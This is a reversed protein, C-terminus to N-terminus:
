LTNITKSNLWVIKRLFCQFFLSQLVHASIKCITQAMIIENQFWENTNKMQDVFEKAAFRDIGIKKRIDKPPWVEAKLNIQSYKKYNALSPSFPISM